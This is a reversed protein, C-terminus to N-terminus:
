GSVIRPHFPSAPRRELHPSYKAAMALHVTEAVRRGASQGSADGWFKQTSQDLLEIDRDVFWYRWAEASYIRDPKEDVVLHQLDPTRLTSILKDYVFSEGTSINLRHEASDIAMVRVGLRTEAATLSGIASMLDTWTGTSAPNEFTLQPLEWRTVLPHKGDSAVGTADSVVDRQELLMAQVGLHFAASVGAETAGIVIVRRRQPVSGPIGPWRSPPQSLIM